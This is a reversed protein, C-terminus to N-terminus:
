FGHDALAKSIRQRTREDEFPFSQFFHDQRFTASRRRLQDAWFRGKIVDGNLKHCAVAIAVILIHAGPASAAQDAWFAAAADEGRVLHSLARTALMAYQLPDVPSLLMAHDADEQGEKGHGLVTQTWARAYIGQAYSPSLTIARNLWGLSSPVDGTLWHVRGMTLNAFPDLPDMEVALEAFRRAAIVESGRDPLYNLFANQFHGFSQGARARAFNPETAAAQEFLAIATQNDAKNFRFMYQVGLHYASWADLRDPAKLRAAQAEHLPIQIELAALTSSVIQARFEHVNVATASYRDSWVIRLNRTDALEVSVTIRDGATELTGTICFNVGLALGIQRVDPCSAALRFSSGRAVVFLWRLRALESLIDHPLAEAILAFAGPPGLVQFPLVAISPRSAAETLMASRPVSPEAPPRAPEPQIMDRVPHVFRFGKGHVTRIMRQQQGDDGLAQRASKIRSAVVGDAIARGSWVSQIIEDTTVLRDRNHVLMLLLSLVQPEVAVRDGSKRLEFKREDLEFQDFRWLM